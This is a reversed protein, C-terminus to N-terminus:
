LQDGPIWEDPWDAKDEGDAQGALRAEPGTQVAGDDGANSPHDAGVTRSNVAGGPGVTSGRGTRVGSLPNAEEITGFVSVSDMRAVVIAATAVLAVSLGVFAVSVSRPLGVRAAFMAGAVFDLVVYVPFYVAAFLWPLWGRVARYEERITTTSESM